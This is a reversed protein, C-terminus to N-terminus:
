SEIEMLITSESLKVRELLERGHYHVAWRRM